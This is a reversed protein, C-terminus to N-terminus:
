AAKRMKTHNYILQRLVNEPPIKTVHATAGRAQGKAIDFIGDSSSLMVVPTDKTSEANRILTCTQYGDLEPMTIDLFIIDPKFRRLMGLAKYGDEACEVECGMAKLTHSMMMRITKADDVIAVKVGSIDLEENRDTM